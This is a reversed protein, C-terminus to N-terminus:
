YKMWALSFVASGKKYVLKSFTVYSNICKNAYSIIFIADLLNDTFQSNILIKYFEQFEWYM